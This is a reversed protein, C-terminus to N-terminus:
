QVVTSCRDELVEVTLAVKGKLVRREFDVHYSLNLHKTTCKSSSAFSCPDQVSAM